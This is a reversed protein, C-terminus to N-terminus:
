DSYTLSRNEGPENGEWLIATQEGKTELYRDLCNVTINTKGGKFWGISIRGERIDYNYEQVSTWKKFWIFKEAEETWFGDPDEISQQYKEKYQDMNSILANSSFVEPPNYLDNM